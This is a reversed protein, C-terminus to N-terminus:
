IKKENFYEIITNECKSTKTICHPRVKVLIHSNPTQEFIGHETCIIKVKTNTSKYDVLSYDFKKKHTKNSIDIFKEKTIM